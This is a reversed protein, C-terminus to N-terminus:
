RNLEVLTAAKAQGVWGPNSEEGSHSDMLRIWEMVVSKIIWKTANEVAIGLYSYQMPNDDIAPASQTCPSIIIRDAPATAINM